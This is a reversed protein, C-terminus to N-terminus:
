LWRERFIFSEIKLTTNGLPECSVAILVQSVEWSWPWVKELITKSKRGLRIESYEYLFHKLLM